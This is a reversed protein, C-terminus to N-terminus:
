KLLFELKLSMEDIKKSKERLKGELTLVRDKYKKILLIFQPAVVNQFHNLQSKQEKVMKILSDKSLANLNSPIAGVKSKVEVKKEIKEALDLAGEIEDECLGMQRLLETMPDSADTGKSKENDAM